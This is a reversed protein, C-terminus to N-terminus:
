AKGNQSGKQPRRPNCLPTPYTGLKVVAERHEKQSSPSLQPRPPLTSGLPRDQGGPWLPRGRQSSSALIGLTGSGGQEGIWEEQAKFFQSPLLRLAGM